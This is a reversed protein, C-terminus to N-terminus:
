RPPAADAHDLAFAHADHVGEPVARWAGLADEYEYAAQERAEALDRHWTDGAFRGDVTYRFLFIGGPKEEIVLVQPRPLRM